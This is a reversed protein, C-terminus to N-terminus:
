AHMGESNPEIPNDKIAKRTAHVVIFGVAITIGVLIAALLVICVVIVAFLIDLM